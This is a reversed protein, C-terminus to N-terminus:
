RLRDLLAHQGFHRFHRELRWWRLLKSRDLFPWDPGFRPRRGYSALIADLLDVFERRQPAMRAITRARIHERPINEARLAAVADRVARPDPPVIRCFEPDFLVERGGISPTSVVPLGALLYEVAAYMAGEAASLCLGVAARAYAANVEEDPLSSPLGDVLPNLFVHGPGASRILAMRALAKDRAHAGGAHWYGLYAVTPIEAALEHRKFDDPRANYIADFEVATGPLPRYVTESLAINQNIFATRVGLAALLDRERETNALVIMEHAPFRARHVALRRAITEPIGPREVTWGPVLLFTAPRRPYRIGIAVAATLPFSLFAYVIIPSRSLFAFGLAVKRARPKTPRDGGLGVPPTRRPAVRADM